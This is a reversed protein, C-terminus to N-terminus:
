HARTTTHSLKVLFEKLKKLCRRRIPGISSAALGESDAVEKYSAPPDQLDLRGLIRRCRPDLRVFVRRLAALEQDRALHDVVDATHVATAEHIEDGGHRQRITELAQYRAAGALWGPLKGPERLSSLSQLAILAVKQVVDRAEESDCGTRLAIAKVLSGYRSWVETWAATDGALCAAVLDRDRARVEAWKSDKM